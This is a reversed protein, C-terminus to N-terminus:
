DDEHTYCPHNLPSDREILHAKCHGCEWEWSGATPIHAITGAKPNYPLSDDEYADESVNDWSYVSVGSCCPCIEADGNNLLTKITEALERDDVSTSLDLEEDCITFITEGHHASVEFNKM